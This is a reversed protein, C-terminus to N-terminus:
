LGDQELLELVHRVPRTIGVPVRGWLEPEPVSYTSRGGHLSVAGVLSPWRVHSVHTMVSGHARRSYLHFVQPTLAFDGFRM